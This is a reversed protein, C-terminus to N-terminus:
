LIFSKRAGVKDPGGKNYCPDPDGPQVVGQRSHM